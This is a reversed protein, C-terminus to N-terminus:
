GRILNLLNVRTNNVCFAKWLIKRRYSPSPLNKFKQHSFVFPSLPNKFNPSWGQIFSHDSCNKPFINSCKFDQKILLTLSLMRKIIHFYNKSKWSVYVSQETEFICRSSGNREEKTTITTFTTTATTIIVTLIVAM